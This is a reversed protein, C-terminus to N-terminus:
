IYQKLMRCIALGVWHRAEEAHGGIGYGTDWLGDTEQHSLFWDVGKSIQPDKLSFGLSALSDLATLLNPWWYPFQFKLWYEEGRRDNYRDKQFIRNKLCEGAAIVEPRRRFGPHAAFARLAMGTALHSHPRSRDPPLPAGSWFEPTKQQPALAQAPVIWGGDLQRMDLLWQLGREIHADSSYGAKILLELMGGHYYPAYQNGLIGRIDGEESQCSYLYSAANALTPHDSTFGYIEVLIRLNRYTQLLAYNTGAPSSTTNGPYRWSGDQLQKKVLRVAEAYEWLNAVPPVPEELLDRQIFYTMSPHKWARLAPIPDVKLQKLWTSPM